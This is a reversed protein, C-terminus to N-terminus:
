CRVVGSPRSHSPRNRRRAGYNARVSNRHELRDRSSAPIFSKCALLYYGGDSSPGIVARDGPRSLVEVMETLLPIPLTPSDSNLVCAARHGAAFQRSM